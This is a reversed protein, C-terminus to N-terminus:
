TMAHRIPPARTSRRASVSLTAAASGIRVGPPPADVGNGGQFPTPHIPHGIAFKRLPLGAFGPETINRGGFSPPGQPGIGSSTWTARLSSLSTATAPPVSYLSSPTNTSDLKVDTVAPSLIDTPLAAKQTV